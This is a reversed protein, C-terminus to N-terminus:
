VEIAPLELHFTAGGGPTDGVRVAGGHGHMIDSVIALGLGAGASRTDRRWFPEFVLTKEDDPVGPGHDIVSVRVASAEVSVLVDVVGGAPEMRLANDVLNAIASRLAPLDGLINAQPCDGQLAVGRGLKIALPACDAVVDRAVAAVDVVDRFDGERQALRTAALLQDVLHGLRTADRRLDTKQGSEPLADIRARLIAIPTRLEHAANATFLRQEALGRELRALIANVASMFNQIERPAGKAPLRRDLTRISIGDAIQAADRLPKLASRVALPLAIMAALIAPIFVPALEPGTVSILWPIDEARFADGATFIIVDGFRTEETGALTLGGGAWPFDLMGSRPMNRALDGVVRAMEPDSGAFVKGTRDAAAFAFGPRSQAYARLEASPAVSLEGTESRELAAVVLARAHAAAMDNYTVYPSFAMWGAIGIVISANQALILLWVLRTSLSAPRRPGLARPTPWRM